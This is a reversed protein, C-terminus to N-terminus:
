KASRKAVALMRKAELIKIKDLISRRKGSDKEIALKQKELTIKKQINNPTDM